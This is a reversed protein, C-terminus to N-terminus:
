GSHRLQKNKNPTQKYATIFVPSLISCAGLGTHPSAENIHTGELPLRIFCFAQLVSNGKRTREKSRLATPIHLAEINFTSPTSSLNQELLNHQPEALSHVFFFPMEAEQKGERERDAGPTM